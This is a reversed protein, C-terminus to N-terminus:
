IDPGDMAAMESLATRRQEDRVAKYAFVHRAEIRRHRGVLEFPIEGTELLKILYPRSVDLLDAAKQTTLKQTVPVFTVADGKSIPELVDLLYEGLGPALVIEKTTSDDLAVRLTAGNSQANDIVRMLQEASDREVGVPLRAGIPLHNATKM